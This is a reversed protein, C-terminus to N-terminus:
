KFYSPVCSQDIKWFYYTGSFSVSIEQFIERDFDLFVNNTIVILNTIINDAYLDYITPLGRGRWSLGTQSEIGNKFASVLLKADNKFFSSIRSYNTRSNYSRIIGIGNDVFSFKVTKNKDSHSLGLHWIIKSDVKFAHDCSNRLMEGITGFLVPCRGRSGWITEMAKPIAPLLENQSTHIDGTRIMINKTNLNEISVNGRMYKFFGSRELTNKALINIPKDGTIIVNVATLENIVSLLMSICGEGIHKVKKLNVHIHNYSSGYKKLSSIFGLVKKSKGSQLDLTEPAYIIKANNSIKRSKDISLKSYYNKPIVQKGNNIRRHKNVKKKRKKRRLIRDCRNKEIINYRKIKKM